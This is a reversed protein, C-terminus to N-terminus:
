LFPFVATAQAVSPPLWLSNRNSEGKDTLKGKFRAELNTLLLGLPQSM